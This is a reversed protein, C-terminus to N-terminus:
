AESGSHASPSVELALRKNAVIVQRVTLAHGTIAKIRGTQLRQSLYRPLPTNYAHAQRRTRILFVVQRSFCLQTCFILYLDAYLRVPKVAVGPFRCALM